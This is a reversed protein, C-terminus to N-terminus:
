EVRGAMASERCAAQKPSSRQSIDYLSTLFDGVACRGKRTADQKNTCVEGNRRTGDRGERMGCRACKDEAGASVACTM